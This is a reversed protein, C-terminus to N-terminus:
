AANSEAPFFDFGVQILPQNLVTPPTAELNLMFMMGYISMGVTTGEALDLYSTVVIQPEPTITKRFLLRNPADGGRLIFRRAADFKSLCAYEQGKDLAVMGLGIKYLARALIIPNSNAKGELQVKFTVSGDELKTEDTIIKSGGKAVFQIHRPHTREMTANGFDAKPLKGKKTYSVYQVRLLALPPFDILASELQALTRNNCEKCVIGRPLILEDNGLSEPFVHEEATFDGSTSLCYICRSQFGVSSAILSGAREHQEIQHIIELLYTAMAFGNENYAYFAHYLLPGVIPVQMLENLRRQVEETEGFYQGEAIVAYIKEATLDEGDCNIPLYGKSMGAMSEEVQKITEASLENAFSEKLCSWVNRYHLPDEPNLFRRMLVVFRVTEHEDPTENRVETGEKHDWKIQFRFAGTSYLRARMGKVRHYHRKFSRVLYHVNSASNM